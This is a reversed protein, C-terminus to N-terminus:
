ADDGDEVAIEGFLNGVLDMPRVIKEVFAIEDESLDLLKMANTFPPLSIDASPTVSIQNVTLGHKIM